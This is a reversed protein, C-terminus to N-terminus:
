SQTKHRSDSKVNRVLDEVERPLPAVLLDARYTKLAKVIEEIREHRRPEPMATM